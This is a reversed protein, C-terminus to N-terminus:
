LLWGHPCDNGSLNDTEEVIEGNLVKNVKAEQVQIHLMGSANRRYTFLLM